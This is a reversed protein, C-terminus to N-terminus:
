TSQKSFTKYDVMCYRIFKLAIIFYFKTRKIVYNCIFTKKDCPQGLHLCKKYPLHMGFSFDLTFKELYCWKECPKEYYRSKKGFLAM